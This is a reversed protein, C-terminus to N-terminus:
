VFFTNKIELTKETQKLKRPKEENFNQIQIKTLSNNVFSM